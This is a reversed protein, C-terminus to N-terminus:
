ECQSDRLCECSSGYIDRWCDRGSCATQRARASSSTSSGDGRHGSRDRRRDHFGGAIDSSRCRRRCRQLRRCRWLRGRRRGSRGAGCRYHRAGATRRQRGVTTKRQGGLGDKDVGDEILVVGVAHTVRGGVHGPRIGEDRGGQGVRLVIGILIDKDVRRVRLPALIDGILVPVVVREVQGEEPIVLHSLVVEGVGAEGGGRAVKRLLNPEVARLQAAGVHLGFVTEGVVPVVVERALVVTRAVIRPLILGLHQRGVVLGVRSLRSLPDLQLAVSSYM